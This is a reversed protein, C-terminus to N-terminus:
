WDITVDYHKKLESILYEADKKNSYKIGFDDVVLCFSIPRTTHKFLGPTFKVPIFGADKLHQVLKRYALIGAQPLGYMGTTIEALVKGNESLADINYEHNIDKPFVWTPIFMYEYQQESEIPTILYFNSLDITFFKAGLTSIVSNFLIKATILDSTPTYTEGDYNVLNGGVTFRIRYPDSKQPRYNACIRLYTAKKEQHYNAQNKSDSATQEKPTTKREAM